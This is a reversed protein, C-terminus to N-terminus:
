KRAILGVNPPSPMQYDGCQGKMQRYIEMVQKVGTAGVPHGFGVLGGGTNVPLRGDIATVGDKVLNVAKGKDAFGLAEYMLAEAIRRKIKMMSESYSTLQELISDLNGSAEGTRLVELYLKSFSSPFKELAQSLPLGEELDSQVSELLVRFNDDDVEKALIKVGKALPMNLRAMSSLQRNFFLVQHPDLRVKVPRAGSTTPEGELATNEAM